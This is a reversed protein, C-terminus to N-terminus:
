SREVQFTAQDLALTLDSRTNRRAAVRFDRQDKFHPEDASRIVRDPVPIGARIPSRCGPFQRAGEADVMWLARVKTKKCPTWLKWLDPTERCHKGVQLESQAPTFGFSLRLSSAFYACGGTISTIEAPPGHCVPFQCIPNGTQTKEHWAM